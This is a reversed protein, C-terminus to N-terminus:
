EVVLTGTTDQHFDDFFSYRGPKQARIRLVGQGKAAIVKEVHLDKSEFEAAIPDLNKVTLTIAQGAPARLEPPDFKHDRISITLAVADQAHASHLAAAAVVAILLMGATGLSRRVM